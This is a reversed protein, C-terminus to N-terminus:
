SAEEPPEAFLHGDAGMYWVPIRGRRARFIEDEIGESTDWGPMMAVVLGGCTDLVTNNIDEWWASETAELEGISAIAHGHAIPSFVAVGLRMMNAATMCAIRYAEERGGPARTYPTALYYLEGDALAHVGPTVDLGAPAGAPETPADIMAIM